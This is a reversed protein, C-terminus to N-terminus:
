RDRSARVRDGNFRRWEVITRRSRKAGIHRAQVSYTKAKIAVEQRTKDQHCPFRCVPQLNSECNKGGNILSTIHDLDWSGSYLKRTCIPCHGNFRLFVRTRVRDPARQDDNLGVWEMLERAM